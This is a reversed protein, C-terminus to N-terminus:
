RRVCSTRRAGRSRGVSAEGGVPRAAPSFAAAVAAAMAAARVEVSLRRGLEDRGGGVGLDAQGRSGSAGQGRRRGGRGGSNVPTLEGGGGRVTCATLGGGAMEGHGVAVLLHPGVGKVEEAGKGEGGVLLGVLIRGPGAAGVELGALPWIALGWIKEPDKQM